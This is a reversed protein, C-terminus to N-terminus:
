SLAIRPLAKSLLLLGMRVQIIKVPDHNDGGNCAFVSATCIDVSLQISMHILLHVICCHMCLSITEQISLIKGDHDIHKPEQSSTVHIHILNCAHHVILHINTFAPCDRGVVAASAAACQCDAMEVKICTMCKRCASDLVNCM